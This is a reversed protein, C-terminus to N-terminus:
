GAVEWRTISRWMWWQPERNRPDPLYHVRVLADLGFTSVATQVSAAVPESDSVYEVRTLRPAVGYGLLISELRSRSKLTLELEAATYSGDPHVVLLDPHHKRPRGRRDHGDIEVCFRRRDAAGDRDAARLQQETHLEAPPGFRGRYAALWLWVTGVDHRYTRFDLKPRPLPSDIMALGGNTVMFAGPEAHFIRRYSLLGAEVLGALRRYAVVPDRGLLSNVHCALVFRQAAIFRLVSRDRATVHFGGRRSRRHNRAGARSPSRVEVPGAARRDTTNPASAM